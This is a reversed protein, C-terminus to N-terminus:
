ARGGTAPALVEVLSGDAEVEYVHVRGWDDMVYISDDSTYVLVREAM